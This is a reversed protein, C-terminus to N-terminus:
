THTDDPKQQLNKNGFLLWAGVIFAIFTGFPLYWLTLGACLLGLNHAWPKSRFMSFVWNIWFLGFLVFMPGLIFVDVGLAYFLEAWPGPLEPGIYKGNKLVYLGDILMFGGNLLALFYIFRKM